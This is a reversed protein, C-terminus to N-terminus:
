MPDLVSDLSKGGDQFSFIRNNNLLIVGGRNIGLEVALSDNDKLEKEGKDSLAFETVKATDIGLKKFPLNRFSSTVNNLRELLYKDFKDPYLAKISLARLCEEKESLNGKKFIFHVELDLGKKEANARVERLIDFSAKQFPEIFLDVKKDFVPRNLYYFIGALQSSLLYDEGRKEFLGSLKDFNQADEIDESFVFAPLTSIGLNKILKKAEPSKYDISRFKIGRFYKKLFSETLKTSCAPCNKMGIVIVDLTRGTKDKNKIKERKVVGTKGFIRGGASSRTYLTTSDQSFVPSVFLSIVASLTIVLRM